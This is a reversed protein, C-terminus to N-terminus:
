PQGRHDFKQSKWQGSEWLSGGEGGFFFGCFSTVVCETRRKGPVQGLVSVSGDLAYAFTPAVTVARASIWVTEASDDPCNSFALVSFV